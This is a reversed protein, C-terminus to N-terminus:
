LYRDGQRWADWTKVHDNHFVNIGLQNAIWVEFEYPMGDGGPTSFTPHSPKTRSSEFGSFELSNTNRGQLYRIRCFGDMQNEVQTHILPFDPDNAYKDTNFIYDFNNDRMAAAYSAAVSKPVFHWRNRSGSPINGGYIRLNVTDTGLNFEHGTVGSYSVRGRYSSDDMTWSGLSPGYLWSGSQQYPLLVWPNLEEMNHDGEALIFNVTRSGTPWRDADVSSETEFDQLLPGRGSKFADTVISGGDWSFPFDDNMGMCNAGFSRTAPLVPTSPTAVSTGSGTNPSSILAAIDSCARWPGTPHQAVDDWFTSVSNIGANELDRRCNRDVWTKTNDAFIVWGPGAESQAIDVLKLLPRDGGQSVVASGSGNVLRAIADCALWDGTPYRAINPWNTVNEAIGRSQLSVRCSPDIWQKTNDSYLVWASQQSSTVPGNLLLSVSAIRTTIGPTSPSSLSVSSTMQACTDWNGSPYQAIRSWDTYTVALGADVLPGRCSPDAWQRTNDSKLVWAADSLSSGKVLLNRTWRSLPPLGTHSSDYTEDRFLRYKGPTLFRSALRHKPNELMSCM